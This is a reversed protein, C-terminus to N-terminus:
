LSLCLSRLRAFRRSVSIVPTFCSLNVNLVACWSMLSDCSIYKVVADVVNLVITVSIYCIRMNNTFYESIYWVDHRHVAILYGLKFNNLEYM